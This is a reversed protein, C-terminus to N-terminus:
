ATLGIDRFESQEDLFLDQHTSSCSQDRCVYAPEGSLFPSLEAPQKGCYDCPPTKEAIAEEIRRLECQITRLAQARQASAEHFQVIAACLKLDTPDTLYSEWDRCAEVVSVDSGTTASIKLAAYRPGNLQMFRHFFETAQAARSVRGILKMLM